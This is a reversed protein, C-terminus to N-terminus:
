SYIPLEKLTGQYSIIKFIGYQIILTCNLQENFLMNCQLMEVGEGKNLICPSIFICILFM